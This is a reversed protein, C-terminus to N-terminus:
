DSIIMVIHHHKGVDRTQLAWERLVDRLLEAPDSDADGGGTAASPECALQMDVAVRLMMLYAESDRSWGAQTVLGYSERAYQRLM